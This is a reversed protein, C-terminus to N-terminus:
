LKLLCGDVYTKHLGPLKPDHAYFVIYLMDGGMTIMAQSGGTASNAPLGKTRSYYPHGRYSWEVGDDSTFFSTTRRGVESDRLGCAMVFAGSPLRTIVPYIGAIETKVPTTWTAGQDESRSTWLKNKRYEAGKHIDVRAYAVVVGDDRVAFAAENFNQKASENSPPDQFAVELRGWRAGGNSSRFFGSGERYGPEMSSQKTYCYAPIILDGNKLRYIAGSTSTLSKPATDLFGISQFSDGNDRSTKLEITSERYGFVGKRSADRHWIRIVLMLLDGNPLQVLETFVGENKSTPEVTMYPQSWTKGEDSSRVLFCKSGAAADGKNVFTTILDGSRTRVLGGPSLADVVQDNVAGSRLVKLGAQGAPAGVLEGAGFLCSLVVFVTEMRMRANDERRLSQRAFDDRSSYVPSGAMELPTAM